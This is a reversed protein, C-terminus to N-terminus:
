LLLNELDNLLRRIGSVDAEGQRRRIIDNLNKKLDEIERFKDRALGASRLLQISDYFTARLWRVESPLDSEEELTEIVQAVANELQKLTCGTRETRERMIEAMKAAFEEYASLIAANFDPVSLYTANPPLRRNAKKAEECAQRYAAERTENIEKALKNMAGFSAGEKGSQTSFSLGQYNGIPSPLASKEMDILLPTVHTKGDGTNRLTAGSLVGTEYCLWNPSSQKSCIVIGRYARCLQEQLGVSWDQGSAMDESLEVVANNKLANELFAKLAQAIVLDERSWCIFIHVTEM